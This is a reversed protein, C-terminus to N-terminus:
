MECVGKSSSIANTGARRGSVKNNDRSRSLIRDIEDLDVDRQMVSAYILRTLESAKADM